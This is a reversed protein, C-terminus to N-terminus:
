QEDYGKGFGIYIGIFGLMLTVSFKHPFRGIAIGLAFRDFVPTFKFKFNSGM